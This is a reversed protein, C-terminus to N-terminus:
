FLENTMGVIHHRTFGKNGNLATHPKRTDVWYVNGAPMKFAKDELVFLCNSNTILPLHVRPTNDRHWTYCEKQGLTMLRSNFMGYQELISNTYTLDYLCEKNTQLSVHEKSTFYDQVEEIIKDTDFSGLIKFTLLSM